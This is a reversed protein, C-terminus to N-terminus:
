TRHSGRRPPRVPAIAPSLGPNERVHKSLTEGFRISAQAHALDDQLVPSSSALASLQLCKMFDLGARLTLQMVWSYRALSSLRVIDGLWPVLLFIRYMVLRRAPVEWWARLQRVIVFLLSLSVVWFPISGVLRTCLLVVRTPLPLEAGSGQFLEVFTPLVFRFMILTLTGTLALIFLPYTLAGRVKQNLKEEKELVLSLQRISEVLAGTNEGVAILGVFLPPFIKPFLSLAHSFRHGNRMKVGITELAHALNGDEVQAQLSDLCHVLPVGASLLVALHHTLLALRHGRRSIRMERDLEARAQAVM